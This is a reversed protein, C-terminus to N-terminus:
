FPVGVARCLFRMFPTGADFATEVKRRFGPSVSNAVPIDKIAIFSTRRIDDIYPHDKDFGRPPRKLAEGSM